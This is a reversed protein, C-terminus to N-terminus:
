QEKWRGAATSDGTPLISRLWDALQLYDQSISAAPSYDLVTMGEALAEDVLSSRHIVCPAMQDGLRRELMRRVDLHLESSADFQNLLYYPRVTRGQADKRGEFESDLISLSIVSNM